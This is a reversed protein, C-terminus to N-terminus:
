GVVRRRVLLQVLVVVAVLMGSPEPVSTAIRVNDVVLDFTAHVGSATGIEFSQGGSAESTFEIRYSGAALPATQFSEWVFPRFATTIGVGTTDVYSEGFSFVSSLDLERQLSIQYSGANGIGIDDSFTWGFDFAVQDGDDLAFVQSLTVSANSGVFSASAHLGASESGDTHFGGDLVGAGVFSSRNWGPFNGTFALQNDEFSGNIIQAECNSQSAFFVVATTLLTSWVLVRNYRNLYQMRILRSIWPLLKRMTAIPRRWTLFKM